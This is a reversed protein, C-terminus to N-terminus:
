TIGAQPLILWFPGQNVHDWEAKHTRRPWEWLRVQERKEACAEQHAWSVRGGLALRQKRWQERKLLSGSLHGGAEWPPGEM